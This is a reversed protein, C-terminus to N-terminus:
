LIRAYLLSKRWSYAYSDYCGAMLRKEEIGDAAFALMGVFSAFGM